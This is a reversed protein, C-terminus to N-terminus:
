GASSTNVFDGIREFDYASLKLFHLGCGLPLRLVKRDRETNRWAVVVQTQVPKEDNPLYFHVDYREGVEPIPEVTVYLGKVSINCLRGERTGKEGVLRCPPEFPVRIFGTYPQNIVM